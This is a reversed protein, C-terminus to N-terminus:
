IMVSSISFDERSGFSQDLLLLQGTSQDRGRFGLSDMLVWLGCICSAVVSSDM